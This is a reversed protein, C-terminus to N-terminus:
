KGPKMGGKIWDASAMGDPPQVREAPDAKV